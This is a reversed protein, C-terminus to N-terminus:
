NSSAMSRSTMASCTRSSRTIGPLARTLLRCCRRWATLVRWDVAMFGTAAYMIEIPEQTHQIGDEDIGPPGFHIQGTTSPLWRLALHSADRVPDAVFSTTVTVATHSPM